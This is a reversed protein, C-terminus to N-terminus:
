IEPAVEAKKANLRRELEAESAIGRLLANVGSSTETADDVYPSVDHRKCEELLARKRTPLQAEGLFKSFDEDIPEQRFLRKM